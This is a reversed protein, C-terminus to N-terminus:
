VLIVGLALNFLAISLPAMFAFYVLAKSPKEELSAIFVSSVLAFVGLYLQTSQMVTKQLGASSALGLLENSFGEQLSSTVNFLLALVVPVLVSGGILLTYKQLSLSATTERVIEQLSSVDEAVDKFTEGSEISGSRYHLALLDCARDLLLSSNRKKLMELARPVSHGADVHRSALAFEEGLAGFDSRGLSSITQEIPTSPPYFALQYLASPLYYEIEARRKERAYEGYLFLMLLPLTLAIVFLLPQFFADLKVFALTAAALAISALAVPKVLPNGIFGALEAGTESLFGPTKLSLNSKM